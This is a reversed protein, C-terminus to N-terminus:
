RGPEQIPSRPPRRTPAFRIARVERALDAFRADSRLEDWVPDFRLSLLGREGQELADYLYAFAGDRDGLGAHAAAWEVRPAPDGGAERARLRDLTWAWFGREGEFEVADELRLATEVDPAGVGGSESWARVAAAAATVNGSAVHSRTLMEWAM